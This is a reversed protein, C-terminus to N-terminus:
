DSVHASSLAFRHNQREEQTILGWPYFQLNSWYGSLKPLEPHWASIRNAISKHVLACVSQWQSSSCYVDYDGDLFQAVFLEM